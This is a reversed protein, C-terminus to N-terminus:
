LIHTTAYDSIQELLRYFNNMNTFTFLPKRIDLGLLQLLICRDSVFMKMIWLCM